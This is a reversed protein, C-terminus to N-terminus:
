KKTLKHLFVCFCHRVHSYVHKSDMKLAHWSLVSYCILFCCSVKFNVATSIKSSIWFYENKANTNFVVQINPTYSYRSCYSQHWTLLYTDLLAAEFLQKSGKRDTNFVSGTLQGIIYSPWMLWGYVCYTFKFLCGTGTGGLERWIFM